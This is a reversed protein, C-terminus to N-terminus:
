GGILDKYLNVDFPYYGSFSVAPILGTTNFYSNNYHYYLMFGTYRDVQDNGISIMRILENDIRETIHNSKAFVENAYNLRNTDHYNIHGKNHYFEIRLNYLLIMHIIHMIYDQNSIINNDFGRLNGDQDLNNVWKFIRERIALISTLSDSFIRIYKFHNGYKVAELVGLLVAYLEGQQITSNHMIHFTQDILLDGVYVCAGSCVSTINNIKCLSADTFICVSDNNFMDRKMLM